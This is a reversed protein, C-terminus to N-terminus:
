SFTVYLNVREKLKVLDPFDPEILKDMHISQSVGSKYCTIKCKNNFFDIDIYRSYSANLSIKLLDVQKTEEDTFFQISHNRGQTCTREIYNATKNVDHLHRSSLRINKLKNNCIPCNLLDDM